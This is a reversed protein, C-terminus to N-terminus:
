RTQAGHRPGGTLNRPQMGLRRALISACAPALHRVVAFAKGTEPPLCNLFRELAHQGGASAADAPGSEHAPEGARRSEQRAVRGELAM